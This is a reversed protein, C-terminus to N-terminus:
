KKEILIKKSSDCVDCVYIYFLKKETKVREKKESKLKSGLALSGIINFLQRQTDCRDRHTVDTETSITVSGGFTLNGVSTM